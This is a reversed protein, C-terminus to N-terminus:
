ALSYSGDESKKVDDVLIKADFEQQRLLAREKTGMPAAAAVTLLVLFWLCRM